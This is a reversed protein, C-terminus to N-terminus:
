CAYDQKIKMFGWSLMTRLLGMKCIFFSLNSSTLKGLTIWDALPLTPSSGLCNSKCTLVTEREPLTVLLFSGPEPEWGRVKPLGREKQPVKYELKLFFPISVLPEKLEGETKAKGLDLDRWKKWSTNISSALTGPVSWLVPLEHVFLICLDGTKMSGLLCYVFLYSCYQSTVLAM